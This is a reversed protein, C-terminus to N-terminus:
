TTSSWARLIKSSPRPKESPSAMSVSTRNPRTTKGNGSRMRCLDLICIMYTNAFSFCVYLTHQIIPVPAPHVYQLRPAHGAPRFWEVMGVPNVFDLEIPKTCEGIDLSPCHRRTERPPVLVFGEALEARRDGM